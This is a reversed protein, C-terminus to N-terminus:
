ATVAVKNLGGLSDVVTGVITQKGGSAGPIPVKQDLVSVTNRV